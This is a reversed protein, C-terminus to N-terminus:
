TSPLAVTCPATLKATCQYEQYEPSQILGRFPRENASVWQADRAVESRISSGSRHSAITERDAEIFAAQYNGDRCRATDSNERTHVHARAGREGIGLGTARGPDQEHTHRDHPPRALVGTVRRATHVTNAAIVRGPGRQAIQEKLM